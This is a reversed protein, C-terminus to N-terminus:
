RTCVQFGSFFGFFSDFGRALPTQPSAFHGLHWKGIMHTRYGAAQVMSATTHTANTKLDNHSARPMACAKRAAGHTM